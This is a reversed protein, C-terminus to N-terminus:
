TIRIWTKGRRIYRGRVERFIEMVYRYFDEDGCLLKGDELIEVVFPEGSKLKSLFVSTNMGLPMLRPNDSDFLQQSAQRPDNSLNDSVVLIDIDSEDTYDGRAYSGFLIV